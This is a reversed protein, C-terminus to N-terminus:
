NSGDSSRLSFPWILIRPRLSELFVRHNDEEEHGYTEKLRQSLGKGGHEAMLLDLAKLFDDPDWYAKWLAAGYDLVQALVIRKDPNKYLKTEILYLNADQDTALADIPGSPTPFERVLFLPRIEQNLQDLPLVDPNDAIYKQLYSEDQIVTRVLRQAPKGRRALIIPM